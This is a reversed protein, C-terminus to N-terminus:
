ETERRMEKNTIMELVAENIADDITKIDDLIMSYGLAAGKEYPLDKFLRYLKKMYSNVAAEDYGVMYITFENGDTRVIDTNELQNTILISAAMKILKDGEEHGYSDNVDKLSNLDIIMIAQPYITNEEWKRMNRSLYYRNKLSTLPDIYKAKNDSKIKQNEKKKNYTLLLIGIVVLTIILYVWLISLSVTTSGTILNNLGITKYMDHNLGSLYYQFLNYFLQNENANNVIYNYNTDARSKFVVNFDELKSNKYYMYTNYDVLLLYSKAKFLRSLSTYTKITANFNKSAYDSLKTNVLVAVKKGSLGKISDVVVDNKINSLIVYDSYIPEITSLMKGDLNTFNYYNFALDAKGDALAKNLDSVSNYKKYTIEVSAFQSFGNIFQSNIGLFDNDDVTEYPLNTVYGYVYRKSQFTKTSNDDINKISCYLDFLEKSYQDNLNQNLWANYNKKIINNLTTNDEKLEFVYKKSLGNFLYSIYYDKKLITNLYMNKPIAVYNFKSQDFMTILTDIDNVPTYSISNNSNIYASVVDLDEKILGITINGMNTIDNLKKNEKSLLVYNDEHFLLDNETLVADGNLIKFKYDTSSMDGGVNYSLKNFDLETNEEFSDLFSFFIGTGENGFLPLNNLVAINIVTNKNSQIWRKEKLNLNASDDNSKYYLIGFVLSGIIAIAILSLILVLKKKKKTKM